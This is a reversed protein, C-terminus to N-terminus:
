LEIEKGIPLLVLDCHKNAFHQKAKEHDIKIFGFTDFHMGIVKKCQLMEAATAADEYGMTFNDGIPLIAWDIKYQNGLLEMETHLGTDGAYYITKGECEFIFGAAVGAYTGDALSSSHAAFTMKASGFDFVKKGGINMPHANTYGQKNMWSYIEWISVVLANTKEALYMLDGTHDDHGHSVFIYDAEVADIDIGAEAALTNGRIFPDIVIRKGGTNLQFCSHGLYTLKVKLM